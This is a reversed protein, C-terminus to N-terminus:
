YNGRLQRDIMLSDGNELHSVIIRYNDDKADLVALKILSHDKINLSKVRNTKVKIGIENNIVRLERHNEQSIPARSGFDVVVM